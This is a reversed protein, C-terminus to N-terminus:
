ALDPGRMRRVSFRTLIKGLKDEPIGNGNDEVAVVVTGDYDWTRVSVHSQAASRAPMSQAANLVLNLIVQGLRTSNALVEPPTGLLHRLTVKGSLRAEALQLTDIVVQNVDVRTVAEDGRKFERLDSAIKAVREVGHLSDSLLDHLEAARPHCSALEESILLADRLAPLVFTLPNNIEHAVGAVLMGLGALRNDTPAVSKLLASGVLSFVLSFSEGQRNARVRVGRRRGAFDQLTAEEEDAAARSLFESVNGVLPFLQSLPLEVLQATEAAGILRVSEENAWQIRERCVSLVAVPINEIIQKSDTEPIATEAIRVLYGSEIRTIEILVESDQGVSATFTVKLDQSRKARRLLGDFPIRWDLPLQKVLSVTMELPVDSWFLNGEVGLVTGLSTTRVAVARREVATSAGIEM